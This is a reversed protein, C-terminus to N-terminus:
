LEELREIISWAPVCTQRSLLRPFVVATLRKGAESGRARVHLKQLTCWPIVTAVLVDGVTTTQFQMPTSGTVTLGM